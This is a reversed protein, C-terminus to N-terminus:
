IQLLSSAEFHIVGTYGTGSVNTSTYQVQGGDTMTLNLGSDDGFFSRGITWKTNTPADNKFILQLTGKEALETTSSIRYITYEVSVGRVTTPNFTLGVVDQASSVNNGINFTTEIIDDPGVVSGLVSTVEEAWGSAGEGWGPDDGPTPYAFINNNVTLDTSM